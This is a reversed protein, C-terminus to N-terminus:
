VPKVSLASSAPLLGSHTPTYTVPGVEPCPGVAQTWLHASELSTLRRGSLAEQCWIQLFQSHGKVQKRHGKCIVAQWLSPALLGWGLKVERIEVSTVNPSPRNHPASPQGQARCPARCCGQGRSVPYCVAEEKMVFLIGGSM